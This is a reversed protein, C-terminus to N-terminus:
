RVVRVVVKYTTSQDTTTNKVYLRWNLARTLEFTTFDGSAVNGSNEVFEKEEADPITFRLEYDLSNTGKNILFICIYKSGLKVLDIDLIKVYDNTTSGEEYGEWCQVYIKGGIIITVSPKLSDNTIM